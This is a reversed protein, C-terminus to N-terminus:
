KEGKFKSKYGRIAVDLPVISIWPLYKVAFQAVTGDMSIPEPYVGLIGDETANIVNSGSVKLYTELWTKYMTLAPTTNVIGGYMDVAQYNNKYNEFGQCIYKESRGDHYYNDKFSLSVGVFIFDRCQLYKYAWLFSTNVVNGGGIDPVKWDKKLLKNYKKGGGLIYTESLGKWNELVKPAVFPSTVLVTKGPDDVLVDPVIHDRAEVVFVYDPIIGNELLFKYAGNSSIIIFNDDAAEKLKHVNNKLAPSTGVLICAKTRGRSSSISKFLKLKNKKYNRVWLKDQEDNIWSSGMFDNLPIKDLGDVGGNTLEDLYNFNVNVEETM